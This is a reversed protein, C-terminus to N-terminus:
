LLFLNWKNNFRGNGLPEFSYQFTLHGLDFIYFYTM